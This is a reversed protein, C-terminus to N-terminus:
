SSSPRNADLGANAVTYNSQGPSGIVSAISSFLVFFDLDLDQTAQHLNWGGIVKPQIVRDFSEWTQNQLLGDQLVGAAHIVGKLSAATSRVLNIVASNDTIDLLAVEIAM